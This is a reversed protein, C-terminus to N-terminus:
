GSRSSAAATFDAPPPFFGLAGRCPFPVLPEVDALVFCWPGSAYPEGPLEEVPVCDILRARGIIAGFDYATASPLAVPLDGYEYGSGLRVRSKGAHILISGRYATQWSRNEVRKPGHVILWAWPQLVSLVKM